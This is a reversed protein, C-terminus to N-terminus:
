VVNFYINLLVISIYRLSCSYMIQEFGAIRFGIACGM